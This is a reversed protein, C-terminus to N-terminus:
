LCKYLNKNGNESIIILCKGTMIKNSQILWPNDITTNDKQNCKKLNPGEM